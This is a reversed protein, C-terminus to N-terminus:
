FGWYKEPITDIIKFENVPGVIYASSLEDETDCFRSVLFGSPDMLAYKGGKYVILMPLLVSGWESSNAYLFAIQDYVPMVVINGGTTLLGFADARKFLHIGFLSPLYVTDGSKLNKGPLKLQKSQIKLANTHRKESAFVVAFSSDKSIEPDDIIRHEKVFNDLDNKIDSLWWPAIKQGWFHVPIQKELTICSVQSWAKTGGWFFFAIACVAVSKRYLINIMRINLENNKFNRHIPSYLRNM